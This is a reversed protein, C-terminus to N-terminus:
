RELYCITNVFYCKHRSHDHFFRFLSFTGFVHALFLPGNHHLWKKTLIKPIPPFIYFLFIVPHHLYKTGRICCYNALSSMKWTILSYGWKKLNVRPVPGINNSCFCYCIFIVRQGILNSLEVNSHNLVFFDYYIDDIYFKSLTFNRVMIFNWSNIFQIDRMLYQWSLLSKMDVYLKQWLIMLKQLSADLSFCRSIVLWWM